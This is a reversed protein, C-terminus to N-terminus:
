VNMNRFMYGIFLGSTITFKACFLNSEFPLSISSSVLFCKFPSSSFRAIQVFLNLFCYLLIDQADHLITFLFM